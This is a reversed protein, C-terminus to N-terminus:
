AERLPEHRFPPASTNFAPALFRQLMSRELRSDGIPWYIMSLVVRVIWQAAEPDDDTIGTLEIALRGLTPSSPLDSLNPAPVTNAMLRRMPDSRIQELAVTIATVAREPGSLGDVARRV